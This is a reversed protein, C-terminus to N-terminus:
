SAFPRCAGGVLQGPLIVADVVVFARKRPGGREPYIMQDLTIPLTTEHGVMVNSAPRRRAARVDDGATLDPGDFDYATLM